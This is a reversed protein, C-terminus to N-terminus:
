VNSLAEQHRYYCRFDMIEFHGAGRPQTLEFRSYYGTSGDLSILVQSFKTNSPITITYTKSVTNSGDLYHNLTLTGSGMVQLRFYLFCKKVKDNSRLGFPPTKFSRVPLSDGAGFWRYPILIYRKESPNPISFGGSAFDLGTINSFDTANLGGAIPTVLPTGDTIDAIGFNQMTPNQFYTQADFLIAGNLTARGLTSDMHYMVFVNNGVEPLPDAVVIVNTNPAINSVVTSRYTLFTLANGQTNDMFTIYITKGQFRPNQPDVAGLNLTTSDIPTAFGSISAGCIDGDPIIFYIDSTMGLGVIKDRGQNDFLKGFVQIPCRRYFEFEGNNFDFCIVTNRYAYLLDERGNFNVQASPSLTPDYITLYYRSNTYDFVGSDWQPTVSRGLTIRIDHSIHHYSSGNFTAIGDKTRGILSSTTEAVSHHFFGYESSIQTVIYPTLNNGTATLIYTANRKFIYLRGQLGSKIGIIEGDGENGIDIYNLANWSTINGPSVQSNDTLDSWYVRFPFFGQVPFTVGHWNAGFIRGDFSTIYKPVSRVDLAQLVGKFYTINTMRYNTVAQLDLDSTNDIVFLPPTLPFQINFDLGPIHYFVPNESELVPTAQGLTRYFRATAWQNLNVDPITFNLQAYFSTTFLSSASMRSPLSENGYIDVLTMIWAYNGNLNSPPMAFKEVRNNDQDVVYFYTSQQFAIGIPNIFEGDGSGSTGGKDVFVGLTTFQQFRSNVKDVVMIDNNTDVALGTPTNFEGDGSGTTGWKLIFAGTNDFKQVRDNGTDVVYVADLADIGIGQPGDFEGDGTGTTGFALLFVGAPDFKQVRDNGTDSVYFNGVADLVIGTPNQFQGAATGTTGITYILTGISDYKSVHDEHVVFINGGASAAIGQPAMVTWQLIFNGNGDFKEIRNNGTDAVYVQGLSDVAVFTPANFQGPGSVPSGFTLIQHSLYSLLQERNASYDGIFITTAGTDLAIAQPYNIDGPSTGAQGLQDVLIGDASYKQLNNNGVNAVFINELADFKINTPTISPSAVSGLAFQGVYTGTTDFVQVRHNNSDVVYVDQAANIAIGYPFNFQGNGTGPSGFNFTHALAMDFVMVRNNTYDAVYVQNAGDDVAIGAVHTSFRGVFSYNAVALLNGISDYKIVGFGLDALTTDDKVSTTIYVNNSSDLAIGTGTNQCTHGSVSAVNFFNWNLVQNLSADYKQVNNGHLAYYNGGGFVTDSHLNAEGILLTPNLKFTIVRIVSDNADSCYVNGLPDITVGVASTGTGLFKDVFVGETDFRQVRGDGDAVLVAPIFSTTDGNFGLTIGNPFEFQGDGTGNSGWQSVYAYTTIDFKQVRQNNGDVVYIFSSGDTAIGLPNDFQGDGTGPTGFQGLYNGVYDFVQVRNNNSDVVYVNGNVDSAIFTPGDFQGNGTGPTGFSSSFAGTPTFIQVRNNAQDVIYIFKGAPISVGTIGYPLDFLGDISGTGGWKFLFKGTSDFVQIYNNGENCVYLQNNFWLVGYPSNMVGDINTINGWQSAYTFGAAVQTITVNNPQVLLNNFVTGDNMKTFRDADAVIDYGNFATHTPLSFAKTTNRWPTNIANLANTKWRHVQRTENATNRIGLFHTFFSEQSNSSLFPFIGTGRAIGGLIGTGDYPTRVFGFGNSSVSNRRWSVGDAKDTLPARKGSNILMKDSVSENIGGLISIEEEELGQFFSSPTFM